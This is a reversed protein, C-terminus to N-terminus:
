KSAQALASGLSQQFGEATISAQAVLDVRASQAHIAESKLMPMAWGSIAASRRRHSPYQLFQVDTISGDRIFVKVQVAGWITNAAQGTFEGDAYRGGSQAAVLVLAAPGAAPLPVAQAACAASLAVLAASLLLKSRMRMAAPM